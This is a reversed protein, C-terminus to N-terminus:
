ESTAGPSRASRTSTGRRSWSASSDAARAFAVRHRRGTAEVGLAIALHTKGTGIPGAIVVDESRELYECTTLQALQPREVGRLAEWDLQDLTKVDPFRAQRLLRASAADRRALM